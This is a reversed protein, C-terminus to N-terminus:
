RFLVPEFRGYLFCDLPQLTHLTTHSSFCLLVFLVFLTANRLLSCLSCGLASLFNSSGSLVSVIELENHGCFFIIKLSNICFQYASFHLRHLRVQVLLTCNCCSYVLRLNIQKTNNGKTVFRRSMIWMCSLVLPITTTLPNSNRLGNKGVFVLQTKSQFVSVGAAFLFKWKILLFMASFATVKNKM